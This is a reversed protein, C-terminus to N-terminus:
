KQLSCPWRGCHCLSFSSPCVRHFGSVSYKYEDAWPQHISHLSIITSIPVQNVQSRHSKSGGPRLVDMVWGWVTFIDEKSSRRGLAEM